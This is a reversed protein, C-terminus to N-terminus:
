PIQPQPCRAPRTSSTVAVVAQPHRRHEAPHQWLFVCRCPHACALYSQLPDPCAGTPTIGHVTSRRSNGKAHQPGPSPCPGSDFEISNRRASSPAQPNVDTEADTPTATVSQRRGTPAGGTISGRRQPQPHQPPHPFMGPSVDGLSARRASGTGPRPVDTPSTATSGFVDNKTREASLTPMDASEKRFPTLANRNFITRLWDKHKRFVAQLVVYGCDDHPKLM